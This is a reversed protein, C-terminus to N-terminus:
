TRVGHVHVDEPRALVYAYPPPTDYPPECWPEYRPLELGENEYRRYTTLERKRQLRHPHVLGPKFRTPGPHMSARRRLCYWLLISITLFGISIMLVLVATRPPSCASTTAYCTSRRLLSTSATIPAM